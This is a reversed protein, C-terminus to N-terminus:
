KRFVAIFDGTYKSRVSFCDPLPTVIYGSDKQFDEMCSFANTLFDLASLFLNPNYSLIEM